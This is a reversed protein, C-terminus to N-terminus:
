FLENFKNQQILHLDFTKGRGIVLERMTYDNWFLLNWYAKTKQLVISYYAPSLADIWCRMFM